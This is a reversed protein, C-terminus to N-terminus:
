RTVALQAPVLRDPGTAVAVYVGTPAPVGAGDKWDWEFRHTGPELQGSYLTRVLRGCQDYVAIDYRAAQGITVDIQHRFAVLRPRRQETVPASEKNRTGPTEDSSFNWTADFYLGSGYEPDYGSFVVGVGQRPAGVPCVVRPRCGESCFSARRDNVKLPASWREPEYSNASRLRVTTNGTPGSNYCLYVYGAASGPVAALDAFWDDYLRDGLVLGTAWNIGGDNSWAAELDLRHSDRRAVTYCVWVKAQWERATDAQAVVPDRCQKGASLVHLPWWQRARGYYRNSQQHIERGNAAYRWVCHITSGSGFTVHPDWCNWWPQTPEWTKAFDLSRTFSGTRGTRMENAYLCYLYHRRDHDACVSFDNITDPGVGVAFDQFTLGQPEIRMVRLDGDGLAVLYFVYVFSSDGPGCVVEIKSVDAGLGFRFVGEWTRGYDTSRYVRVKTDRGAAAVWIVGQNDAAAAFARVSVTDIVFDPGVFWATNGISVVNRLHPTRILGTEVLADPFTRSVPQGVIPEQRVTASLELDLAKALGYDCQAVAQQLQTELAACNEPLSGILEVSGSQVPSVGLIAVLVGAAIATM